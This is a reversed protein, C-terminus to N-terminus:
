YFCIRLPSALISTMHQQGVLGFDVTQSHIIVLSHPFSGTVIQLWPMYSWDKFKTSIEYHNLSSHHGSTNSWKVSDEFRPICCRININHCGFKRFICFFNIGTNRPNNELLIDWIYEWTLLNM